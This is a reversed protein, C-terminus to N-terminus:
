QPPPRKKKSQVLEFGDEDIIKEQKPRPEHVEEMEEFDEDEEVSSQPLQVNSMLQVYNLGAQTDQKVVVTAYLEVLQKGVHEFSGDEVECDLQEAFFDEFNGALEDAQVQQQHKVFFDLIHRELEQQPPEYPVYPSNEIALQLAQWKTLTLRVTQCFLDWNQSM